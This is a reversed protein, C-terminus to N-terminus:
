VNLNPFDESKGKTQRAFYWSININNFQMYVWFM